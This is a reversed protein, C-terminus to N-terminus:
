ATGAMKAIDNFISRYEENEKYLRFGESCLRSACSLSINGISKCIDRYSFSCLARQVFACFARIGAAERTSKLRIYSLPIGLKQAIHRAVEGPKVGRFVVERDDRYINRVFRPICNLISKVTGLDRHREVLKIYEKLAMEPNSANVLGLLFGTHVLKMTDKRTGLYIGLSSFPYEHEKGSYGEIDKPNNHIYASLALSYKDSSVVKSEFRQQFVPGHRKYRKNYYIAYSLNLCHMFKSIDFGRLDMHLHLHTDMLCYAYLRCNYKDMCDKLIGLYFNKDEDDRFLNFESISRCM